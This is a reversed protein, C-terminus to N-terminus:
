FVLCRKKRTAHNASGLVQGNAVMDLTIALERFVHVVNWNYKASCEVHASRWTKRVLHSIEKRDYPQILTALNAVEVHHNSQTSDHHHHHGGLGSNKLVNQMESDRMSSFLPESRCISMDTSSGGSEEEQFIVFFIMILFFYLLYYM